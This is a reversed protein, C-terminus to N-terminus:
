CTGTVIGNSIRITCTLSPGSPAPTPTPTSGAPECTSCAVVDLTATEWIPDDYQNDIRQSIASQSGDYRWEVTCDGCPAIVNPSNPCLSPYGGSADGGTCKLTSSRDGNKTEFGWAVDTQANLTAGTVARYSPDCPPGWNSSPTCGPLLGTGNATVHLVYHYLGDGGIPCAASSQVNLYYYGNSHNPAAHPTGFSGNLPSGHTNVKTNGSDDHCNLLAFAPRAQLTPASRLIVVGTLVVIAVVAVALLRRALTPM